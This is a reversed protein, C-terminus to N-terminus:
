NSITIHINRSITASKFDKIINGGEINGILYYFFHLHDDYDHDYLVKKM